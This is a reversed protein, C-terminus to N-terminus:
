SNILINEDKIGCISFHADTCTKSAPDVSMYYIRDTSGDHSCLYANNFKDLFLARSIILDSDNDLLITDADILEAGIEFLYREETFISIMIRRVEINDEKEIKDITIQEPNMIVYEPVEVGNIHYIKYGDRFEISPGNPNHLETNENKHIALPRDCILCAKEFTYFWGCSLSINYWIDLLDSNKQEYKVGIKEGFKYFAQWYIDLNGLFSTGNYKKTGNIKNILNEAELPSQCHVFKPIAYGRLEYLKSIYIEANKFNAPECSLGINLSHQTFEKLEIEQEPTLTDIM